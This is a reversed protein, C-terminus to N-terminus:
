PSIRVTKSLALAEYTQVLQATAGGSVPVKADIAIAMNYLLDFLACGLVAFESSGVERGVTTTNGAVHINASTVTVKSTGTINITSNAHVDIANGALSISSLTDKHILEINSTKNDIRIFSGKLEMKLGVEKDFWFKIEEDGDFLIFHAGEYKTSYDKGAKKLEDKIDEGIEQIQSYEPSYICGDVFQVKVISGVKPISISGGRADQGFFMPKGAPVAWPLDDVQYGDFVSYVEIKCRGEFEPDDIAKVEGLYSKTKKYNNNM